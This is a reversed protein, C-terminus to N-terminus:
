VCYAHILQSYATDTKISEYLLNCVGDHWQLNLERILVMAMAFKAGKDLGYLPVMTDHEKCCHQKSFQHLISPVFCKDIM